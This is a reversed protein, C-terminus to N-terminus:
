RKWARIGRDLADASTIVLSTRTLDPHIKDEPYDTPMKKDQSVVWSAYQSPDGLMQGMSRPLVGLRGAVAGYTARMQKENLYELVESLKEQTDMVM